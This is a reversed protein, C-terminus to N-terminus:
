LQRDDAGGKNTDRLEQLRNMLWVGTFKGELHNLQELTERLLTEQAETVERNHAELIAHKSVACDTGLHEFERDVTAEFDTM